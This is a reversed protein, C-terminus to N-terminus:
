TGVEEAFEVRNRGERKARYLAADARGIWEALAEGPDYCAVGISITMPTMAPMTDLQLPERALAARINNGVTVGAKTNTSPLLVAFEEGGYRATHDQGRISRQLMQALHCLSADGAQHGWTDNVKKFYDIDIMLLSLDDGSNMADGALKRLTTDFSKRNAVGTLGDVTAERIATELTRELAEIKNASESLRSGVYESRGAMRQTERVLHQTLEKLTEISKGFHGSSVGSLTSGFERADTTALNALGIVEQLTEQVRLSTERVTEEEKESTLFTSYLNHLTREDFGTNNSIIVDVTWKLKPNYGAHYEYWLAYNEPTAPIEYQRMSKVAAESLLAAEDIRELYM